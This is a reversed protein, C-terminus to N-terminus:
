FDSWPVKWTNRGKEFSLFCGITSSNLLCYDGLWRQPHEPPSLDFAPFPISACAALSALLLFSGFRAGLRCFHSIHTGKKRRLDIMTPTM